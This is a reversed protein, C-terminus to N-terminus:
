GDRDCCKSRTEDDEYDEGNDQWVNDAVQHEKAEVAKPDWLDESVHLTTSSFGDFSPIHEDHRKASEEKRQTLRAACEKALALV